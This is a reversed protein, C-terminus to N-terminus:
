HKNIERLDRDLWKKEKNKPFPDKVVVNSGDM